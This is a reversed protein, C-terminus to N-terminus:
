SCYGSSWSISREPRADSSPATRGPSAPKRRWASAAEITSFIKEGGVGLVGTRRVEDDVGEVVGIM